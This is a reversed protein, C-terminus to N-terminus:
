QFAHRAGSDRAMERVKTEVKIGGARRQGAMVSVIQVKSTTTGAARAVAVKFKDRVTTTFTGETYPMSIALSVFFTSETSAPSNPAPTGTTESMTATGSGCAQCAGASSGSCDKRCQGAPCAQCTTCAESGTSTKFTGSACAQCAGASSGGCGTRHEGAPCGACAACSSGSLYQNSSCSAASQVTYTCDPSKYVASGYATAWTARVTVTGDNPVTFTKSTSTDRKM